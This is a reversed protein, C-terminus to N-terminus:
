GKGKAPGPLKEGPPAPKPQKEKCYPCVGWELRLPKGCEVCAKKLTKMCYPCVLFEGEVPRLCAPCQGGDRRLLAEKSRIELTREKADEIYEPPRVVMYIAWGAMNFIAVVIGWFWGMAGRKRADRVTWFILAFTFVVFFLSCLQRLLQFTPNDFLPQLLDM